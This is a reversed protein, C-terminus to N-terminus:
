YRPGCKGATCGGRGGGRSGVEQSSSIRGRAAVTKKKDNGDM